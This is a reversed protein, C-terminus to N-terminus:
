ELLEELPTRKKFVKRDAVGSRLKSVLTVPMNGTVRMASEAYNTTM